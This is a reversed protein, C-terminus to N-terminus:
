LKILRILEEVFLFDQRKAGRRGIRGVIHKDSRIILGFIVPHDDREYCYGQIYWRQTLYAM